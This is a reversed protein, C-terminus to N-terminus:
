AARRSFKDVLCGYLIPRVAVNLVSLLARYTKMTLKFQRGEDLVVVEDLYNLFGNGNGIFGEVTNGSAIGGPGGRSPFDFLSGQAVVEASTGGGKLLTFIAGRNLALVHATASSTDTGTVAASVPQLATFANFERHPVDVRIGLAYVILTADKEMRGADVMNTYYDDVIIDTGGDLSKQSDGAVKNFFDIGQASAPITTAPAWINEHWRQHDIGGVIRRGGGYYKMFDEVPMGDVDDFSTLVYTNEPGPKNVWVFGPPAAPLNKRPGTFTDM